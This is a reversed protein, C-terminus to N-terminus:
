KENEVWSVVYETRKDPKAITPEAAHWRGHLGLETATLEFHCMAIGMDIRQMDAVHIPGRARRYSPSRQLYFHWAGRRRVIRWPQKNSASPGLRVMELPVAYQGADQESIPTGFRSDFFLREWPLRKDAAVWRRAIADFRRQRDAIYGVSAVAPMTEGDDLGVKKAFGSRTFTGGLWCTGLGLDTAFLVTREMTYGLDEMDHESQEVAGVVFGAPKKIFGYTGLGRLARQDEETAAVLAFRVHTGFPGSDIAACRDALQQRTRREIPKGTYTRCSFRKQIIESIPNKYSV